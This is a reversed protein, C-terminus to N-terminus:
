DTGGTSTARTFAETSNLAPFTFVKGTIQVVEFDKLKLGQIENGRLMPTANVRKNRLKPLLRGDPALYRGNAGKMPQRWDFNMKAYLAPVDSREVIIAGYTRLARMIAKQAVKNTRPLLKPAKVGAKLRVRAGEPISDTSGVGDTASAPQVYTDRAPGPLAMALAHEIRGAKIEEPLLVGAFSPLGSGITSVSNPVQYGSGNLTWKRLFQYSMATGSRRARWMAYAVGNGADEVVFAGDYSPNPSANAPIPLSPVNKGDGCYPPLQRCVLRTETGGRTTVIPISWRNTNIFVGTRNQVIQTRPTGTGTEVLGVRENARAMYTASKSDTSKGLVGQNWPSSDAFPRVLSLQGSTDNIDIGAAGPAGTPEASASGPEDEVGAGGSGVREAKRKAAASSTTTATTTTATTTSSTENKGVGFGFVAILVLLAIIAVAILVARM